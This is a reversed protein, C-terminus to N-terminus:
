RNRGYKKQDYDALTTRAHYGIWNCVREERNGQKKIGGFMQLFVHAMEHFFTDAIHRKDQRSYIWVKCGTIKPNKKPGYYETLGYPKGDAYAIKKASELIRRSRGGVKVIIAFERM